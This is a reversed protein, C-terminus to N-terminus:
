CYIVGLSSTVIYWAILKALPVDRIAWVRALICTDYFILILICALTARMQGLLSYM